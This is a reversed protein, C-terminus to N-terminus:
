EQQIGLTKRHKSFAPFQLAKTFIDSLNESSAVKLLQITRTELICERIFHFSLDLHKVGPHQRWTTAVTITSNNDQEILTPEAQRFGVEELFNRCWQIDRAAFNLEIYEAATSSPARTKQLKSQYLFPGSTGIRVCHGSRSKRESKDGAWDADASAYLKIESVDGGLELAYGKTSKLYGVIQLLAAWHEIGPNQAHSGVMSVSTLIDPRATIAIYLVSGLVQKFPKGKMAAKEQESIPSMEKTLIKAPNAPLKCHRRVLKLDDENIEPHQLLAEIKPEQHLSITKMERNRCFHMNLYYTIPGKDTMPFDKKIEQKLIQMTERNPCGLLLDDVYV